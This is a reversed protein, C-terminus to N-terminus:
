LTVVRIERDHVLCAFCKRKLGPNADQLRKALPTVKRGCACKEEPKKSCAKATESHEM